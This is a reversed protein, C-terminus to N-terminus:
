SDLEECLCEHILQLVKYKESISFRYIVDISSPWTIAIKHKAIWLTFFHRNLEYCAVNCCRYTHDNFVTSRGEFAYTVKLNFTKCIYNIFRIGRM